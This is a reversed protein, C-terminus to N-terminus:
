RTAATALVDLAVDELEAQRDADDVTQAAATVAQMVGGATLDGSRIFCDLISAQEADSFAHTKAVREITGAADEVPTSSTEEIGNVVRAVYDADLFTQVADRAKATVVELMKQQTDASWAIVGEDLKGGLHVARMADKTITMGNSCIRVVLRPTITFAGGGTESNSIVFGGFVIPLENGGADVFTDGGDARERGRGGFPSRYNGLLTPALATIGPAAVSVRMQRETLSAGVIEVPTGTKNVGDLAAMLMDLNDYMGFRDSLIARAIGIEDPDDVRFGRVLFKRSPNDLLWTNVNHDLLDAIANQRMSDTSGLAEERMRRLYHRPIDLRQALGNEFIDTPALLADAEAVGDDDLRMAGGEVHLLGGNYRLRNATVVVDYKVDKQQQLLGVLDNLNGNRLTTAPLTGNGNM